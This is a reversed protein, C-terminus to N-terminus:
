SSSRGTVTPTVKAKRCDESVYKLFYEGDEQTRFRLSWPDKAAIGSPLLLVLEYPAAQWEPNITITRGDKQYKFPFIPGRTKFDPKQWAAAVAPSVLFGAAAVLASKLLFQRRNM